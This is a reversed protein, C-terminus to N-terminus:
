TEILTNIVTRIVFYPTSEPASSISEYATNPALCIHWTCSFSDLACTKSPVFLQDM